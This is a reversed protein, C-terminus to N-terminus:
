WEQEENWSGLRELSAAMLNQELEILVIEIEPSIYNNQNKDM